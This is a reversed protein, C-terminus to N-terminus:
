QNIELSGFRESKLHRSMDLLNSVLYDLLCMLTRKQPLAPMSALSSVLSSARRGTACGFLRNHGLSSKTLLPMQAFPFVPHGSLELALDRDDGASAVADAAGRGCSQCAKM